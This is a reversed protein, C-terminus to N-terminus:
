SVAWRLAIVESFRCVIQRIMLRPRDSDREGGMVGYTYRTAASPIDALTELISYGCILQHM